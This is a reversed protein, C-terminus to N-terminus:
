LSCSNLASSFARSVSAPDNYLARQTEGRRERERVGGSDKEREGVTHQERREGKIDTEMRCYLTKYEERERWRM